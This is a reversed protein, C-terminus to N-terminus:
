GSSKKKDCFVGELYELYQFILNFYDTKKVIIISVWKHTINQLDNNTRKNKEIPWQTTQGEEILPKQNGM